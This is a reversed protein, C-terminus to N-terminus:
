REGAHTPVHRSGGPRPDGCGGRDLGAGVAREGFVVEAHDANSQEESRAKRSLSQPDSSRADDDFYRCMTHVAALYVFPFTLSLNRYEDKYCFFIFLPLNAMATVILPWRVQAPKSRWYGFTMLLLVGLILLNSPKPLSILAFHPRTSAIWPQWSFWFDLNTFFHWETTVGPHDALMLKITVYGIGVVATEWLAAFADKRPLRSAGSWRIVAGFLPFLVATEKNAIALALVFLTLLNRRTFVLFTYTLLLLLEFHDYIYGNHARYSITLLLAFAIPAFDLLGRTVATAPYVIRSIQRLLILSLFLFVFGSTLTIAYVLVLRDDLTDAGDAGLTADLAQRGREIWHAAIGEPVYDAASSVANRMLLRFAYPKPWDGSLVKELSYEPHYVITTWKYSFSWVAQSAAIAYLLLLMSLYTAGSAAQKLRASPTQM